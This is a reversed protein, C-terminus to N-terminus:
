SIESTLVLHLLQLCVFFLGFSPFYPSVVSDAEACSKEEMFVKVHDGTNWSLM